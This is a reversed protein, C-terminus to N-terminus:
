PIAISAGQEITKRLFEKSFDADLPIYSAFGQSADSTFAGSSSIIGAIKGDIYVPGGSDGSGALVDSQVSSPNTHSSPGVSYISQCQGSTDIQVTNTGYRKYVGTETDSNADLYRVGFGTITMSEGNVMARDLLSVTAPATGENFVLVALDSKGADITAGSSSTPGSYFVKNPVVGSNYAASM